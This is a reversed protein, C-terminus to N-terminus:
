KTKEHIRAQIANHLDEDDMGLKAMTDKITKKLADVRPRLKSLRGLIAEMKNEATVGIQFAEAMIKDFGTAGDEPTCHIKALNDGNPLPTLSPKDPLGKAKREKAPIENETLQSQEIKTENEADRIDLEDVVYKNQPFLGEIIFYPTNLALEAIFERREKKKYEKHQRNQIEKILADQVIVEKHIAVLEDDITDLQASLANNVTLLKEQAKNIYDLMAKKGHTVTMAQATACTLIVKSRAMQQQLDSMDKAGDKRLSEYDTTVAQTQSDMSAIRGISCDAYTTFRAWNYVTQAQFVGAITETVGMFLSLMPISTGGISIATAGLEGLLALATTALALTGSMLAVGATSLSMAWTTATVAAVGGGLKKRSTTMSVISGAQRFLKNKTDMCKSVETKAVWGWYKRPAFLQDRLAPFVSSVEFICTAEAYHGGALIRIFL